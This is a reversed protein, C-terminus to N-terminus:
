SASSTSVWRFCCRSIVQSQREGRSSAFVIELASQMQLAAQYEVSFDAGTDITPDIQRFATYMSALLHLGLNRLACGDSRDAAVAQEFAGLVQNILGGRATTRTATANGVRTWAARTSSCSASSGSALKKTTGAEAHQWCAEALVKNELRRPALAAIPILTPRGVNELTTLPRDSQTFDAM